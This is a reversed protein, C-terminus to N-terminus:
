DTIRRGVIGWFKKYFITAMGDPGSAKLDGINDLAEKIEEDTFDEMLQENMAPTVQPQVVQLLQQVDGNVNSTFLQM